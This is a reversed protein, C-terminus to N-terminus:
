AKPLQVKIYHAGSEIAAQIGVPSDEFILSEAPTMGERNMAKIYCEASPKSNKVDAGTILGDIKDTLSFHNMVNSINIAQGTSVIWVKGGEARFSQAYDWLPQNLTIINFHKPYIEIKRRRMRDIEYSDTFGLRRMFEGCRMGFFTNLYEEEDLDFNVEKLVDRYARYNAQRTDVLTGDFDILLLKIQM